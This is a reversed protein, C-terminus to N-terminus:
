PAQRNPVNQLAVFDKDAPQPTMDIRTGYWERFAPKYVLMTATFKKSGVLLRFRHYQKRIEPTLPQRPYEYRYEPGSAPNLPNLFYGAGPRLPDGKEVLHTLRTQFYIADTFDPAFFYYGANTFVPRKKDPLYADLFFRSMIGPYNQSMYLWFAKTFYTRTWSENLQVTDPLTHPDPPSLLFADQEVPQPHVVGSHGMQCGATLLAWFCVIWLIRGM